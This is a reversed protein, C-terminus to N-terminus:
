SDASVILECDERVAGVFFCGKVTEFFSECVKRPSLELFRQLGLCYKMRGLWRRDDLLNQLDEEMLDSVLFVADQDTMGDLEALDTKRIAKSHIKYLNSGDRDLLKKLCEVAEKGQLKELPSRNALNRLFESAKPDGTSAVETEGDQLRWAGSQKLDPLTSDNHSDFEYEDSLEKGIVTTSHDLSESPAETSEINFTSEIELETPPQQLIQQEESQGFAIDVDESATETEEQAREDSFEFSHEDFEFSSDSDELSDIPKSDAPPAMDVPEDIITSEAEFPELPQYDGESDIEELSDFEQEITESPDLDVPAVRTSDFEVSFQFPGIRVSDGDSLSSRNAYRDNIVINNEFNMCEVFCSNGRCTIRCHIEELDESALSYDAAASSGISCSQGSMLCIQLGDNGIQTLVLKALNSERKAM